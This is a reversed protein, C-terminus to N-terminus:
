IFFILLVYGLLGLIVSHYIGDNISGGALKGISLGTFVGEIIAIHLFIKSYLSADIPTTGEAQAFSTSMQSSLVPVLFKLMGIMVLIFIVYIIYGRIIQSSVIAEREKKLADIEFASQGVSDLVRAIKGGSRYVEIITAISRHIVKSRTSESFDLFAQEFPIGWSIKSSLKRINPTLVGYNNRATCDIALPLSMGGRIGEVIDKLFIPFIRNTEKIKKQIIYINISFPIVLVFVSFINFLIHIIKDQGDIFILKVAQFIMSFFISLAIVYITNKNDEDKIWVTIKQM